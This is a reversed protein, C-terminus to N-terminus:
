RQLTQFIVGDICHLLLRAYTVHQLWRMACCSNSAVMSRRILRSARSIHLLSTGGMMSITKAKLGKLLMLRMGLMKAVRAM